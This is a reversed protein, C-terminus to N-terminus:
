KFIIEMSPAMAGRQLFQRFAKLEPYNESVQLVYNLGRPMYQLYNPRDYLHNLRAFIGLAKLNRQIGMLDFWRIFEALSAKKLQGADRLLQYFAAILKEIDARPWDIYCDRLLSVADYTIPGWVADQFDLVGIGDEALRLLNRSHYDRHVCVQPQAAAAHSLLNFTDTLVHQEHVNLQIGYHKNVVWDIYLQWERLIFTHGFHPLTWDAVSDCAQIRPLIALANFYLQAFNDPTLENLYLRDGFDNLLLFGRSLDFAFIQPVQVGLRAFARAIAIFPRCDEKDPPADMAIYSQNALQIRFYRRFSADGTIPQIHFSQKALSQHLWQQLLLLRHDDSM